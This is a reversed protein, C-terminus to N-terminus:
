CHRCKATNRDVGGVRLRHGSGNYLKPARRTLCYYTPIISVVVVSDTPEEFVVGLIQHYREDTRRGHETERHPIM